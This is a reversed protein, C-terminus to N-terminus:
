IEDRASRLFTAIALAAAALALVITAALLWGGLWSSKGQHVRSAITGLFAFWSRKSPEYYNVSALKGLGLLLIKRSGDNDICVRIPGVERKRPEVGVRLIGTPWGGAISGSALLRRGALVRLRLPPTPSRLVSAGFVISGTDAPLREDDQCRTSGGAVHVPYGSPPVLNTGTRHVSAPSLASYFAVVAALLAAGLVIRLAM